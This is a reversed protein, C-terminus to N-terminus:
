CFATRIQKMESPKCFFVLILHFICKANAMAQSPLLLWRSLGSKGSDWTKKKTKQSSVSSVFFLSLFRLLSFSSPSLFFYVPLLFVVEKKFLPTVKHQHVQPACWSSFSTDQSQFGGTLILMRNLGSDSFPLPFILSYSFFLSFSLPFPSLPSSSSPPYHRQKPSSLYNNVMNLSQLVLEAPIQVNHPLIPALAARTSWLGFSVALAFPPPPTSPLNPKNLWHSLWM